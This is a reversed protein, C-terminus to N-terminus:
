YLDFQITRITCDGTDSWYRTRGSTVCYITTYVDVVRVTLAGYPSMTGKYNGDVYVEVYYAVYSDFFITCLSSQERNKIVAKDVTPAGTKINKDAGRSKQYAKSDVRKQIKKEDTQGYTTLALTSIAFILFTAKKM